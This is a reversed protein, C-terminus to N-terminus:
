KTIETWISNGIVKKPEVHYGAFKELVSDFFNHVYRKSDEGTGERGRLRLLFKVKSGNNAFEKTHNVKMDLDHESIGLSIRIEKNKAQLAKQKKDNEKRAKKLEYLHKQMDLIKVIKPSANSNIIFIDQNLEEALNMVTSFPVPEKQSECNVIRFRDSSNVGRNFVYFEVSDFGDKGKDSKFFVKM